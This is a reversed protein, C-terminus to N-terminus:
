GGIIEIDEASFEESQEILLEKIGEADEFTMKLANIENIDTAYDILNTEIIEVDTLYEKNVILIYKKM